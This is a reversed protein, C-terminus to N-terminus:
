ERQDSVTYCFTALKEFNVRWFSVVGYRIVGVPLLLTMSLYLSFFKANNPVVVFVRDVVSTITDFKSLELKVRGAPPVKWKFLLHVAATANITQRAGKSV